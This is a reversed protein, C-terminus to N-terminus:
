EMYQELLNVLDMDPYDRALRMLDKSPKFGYELLMRVLVIDRELIARRLLNGSKAGLRLAMLVLDYSRRYIGRALIHNVNAGAYQKLKLYYAAYSSNGRYKDIEERSLLYNDIIKRIWVKSNCVKKNFDKSVLCARALDADDLYGYTLQLIDAPIQETYDKQRTQILDPDHESPSYITYLKLPINGTQTIYHKAGSPINLSVGDSLEYEIGDIIAKGTGKEIRIFQSIDPHIEEPIDESPELSMLVVQNYPTTHIVKRYYNNNITDKEINIYLSM